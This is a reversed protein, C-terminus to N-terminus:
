LGEITRMVMLENHLPAQSRTSCDMSATATGRVLGTLRYGIM